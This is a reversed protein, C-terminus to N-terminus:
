NNLEQYQLLYTEFGMQNQLNIRKWEEPDSKPIGDATLFGNLEGAPRDAPLPVHPKFGADRLQTYVYGGRMIKLEGLSHLLLLSDRSWDSIDRYIYGYGFVNGIGPPAYSKGGFEGLMPAVSNGPFDYGNLILEKGNRPFHTGLPADMPIHGYAEILEGASGRYDHASLIIQEPNFGPLREGNRIGTIQRWGDGPSVLAGPPAEELTTKLLELQFKERELDSAPSWHDPDELLGWDENGSVFYFLGPHGHGYAKIIEKWEKLFQAMASPDRLDRASPMELSWGIGLKEMEYIDSWRPTTQHVRHFNFGHEKMMVIDHANSDKTDPTYLGKPYVMQNLVGRLYYPRNNLHFYGYKQVIDSFGAYSRLREILKGNSYLKIDVDYLQPSEPSWLKPRDVKLESFLSKERSLVAIKKSGREILSVEAEVTGPNTGAVEIKYSFLGQSNTHHTFNSVYCTPDIKRLHAGKWAGTSNGYFIVGEYTRREQKGVSRDRALRDDAARLQIINEKGVEIYPTINVEIPAYAGRHSTVFKDNIFVKTEYDVGELTLVAGKWDAPILLTKRYWVIDLSGPQRLSEYNLGSNEAEPAFGFNIKHTFPSNDGVAFDWQEQDLDMIEDPILGPRPANDYTLNKILKAWGLSPQLVSLIVYTFLISSFSKM